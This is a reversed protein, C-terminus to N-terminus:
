GLSDVSVIRGHISGFLRGGLNRPVYKRSSTAPGFTSTQIANVPKNYKNAKKITLQVGGNETPQIGYAKLRM